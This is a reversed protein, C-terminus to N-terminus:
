DETSVWEDDYDEYGTLVSNQTTSNQYSMSRRTGGMSYAPSRRSQVAPDYGAIEVVESNADQLFHMLFPKRM